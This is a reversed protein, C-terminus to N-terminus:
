QCTLMVTSLQTARMAECILVAMFIIADASMARETRAPMAAGALAKSALLRKWCSSRSNPRSLSVGWLQLAATSM